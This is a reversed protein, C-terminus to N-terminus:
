KKRELDLGEEAWDAKTKCTRRSVRSATDPIVNICVKRTESAKAQVSAAPAGSVAVAPKDDAAIAPQALALLACAPVAFAAIKPLKTMKDNGWLM